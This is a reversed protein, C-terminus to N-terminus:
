LGRGCPSERVLQAQEPQLALIPLPCHLRRSSPVQCLPAKEDRQTRSPCFDPTQLHEDQRAGCQRELFGPFSKGEPIAWANVQGADSKWWEQPTFEDKKKKPRYPGSDSDSDPTKTAQTRNLLAKPLTIKPVIGMKLCNFTKAIKDEM